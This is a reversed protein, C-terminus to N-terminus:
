GIYDIYGLLLEDDYAYIGANEVVKVKIHRLISKLTPKTCYIVNGSNFVIKYLVGADRELMYKEALIAPVADIVKYKYGKALQSQTLWSNREALEAKIEVPTKGTLWTNVFGEKQKKLLGEMARLEDFDFYDFRKISM